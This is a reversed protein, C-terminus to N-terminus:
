AGSRWTSSLAQILASKATSKKVSTKLTARWRCPSSARECCYWGIAGSRAWNRWGAANSFLSHAWRATPTTTVDDPLRSLVTGTAHTPSAVSDIKVFGHGAHLFEWQAGIPGRSDNPLGKGDGDWASGITHVPTQNGTVPGGEDDSGGHQTCVYVRSGVRRLDGVAIRQYVAWPKVHALNSSQLFFLSGIDGTVFIGASATLTVAGAVSSASVTVNDDTNIDAFPGNALTVTELVFTNAGMRKLKRPAHNRCFLYMVDASQTASIAFTGQPTTLDQESFPTALEVPNGDQGLLVGRQSYIRIIGPSFALMYGAQASVEFPLLWCAGAGADIRTVFRTGARRVLPGQLTPLFNELVSCGSHYKALDSRAALRPSLLGADFSQQIHAIKSM